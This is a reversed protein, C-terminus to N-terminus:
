SVKREMWLSFAEQLKESDKFKVYACGGQIGTGKIDKALGCIVYFNAQEMNFIKRYNMITGRKNKVLTEM